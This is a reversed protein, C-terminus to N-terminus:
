HKWLKISGNTGAYSSTTGGAGGGGETTNLNNKGKPSTATGSTFGLNDNPIDGGKGGVYGAGSFAYGNHGGYFRNDDLIDGAGGGTIFLHEISSIVSSGGGALVGNSSISSSTCRLMMETTVYFSTKIYGGEYANHHSTACGGAGKIECTYWGASAIYQTTTYGSINVVLTAGTEDAPKAGFANVIGDSSTITNNEITLDGIHAETYRYTASGLAGANDTYESTTDDIPKIDGTRASRMKNLDDAELEQGDVFPVPIDTM